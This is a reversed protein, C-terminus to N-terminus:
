PHLGEAPGGVGDEAVGLLGAGGDEGDGGGEDEGVDGDVGPGGALYSLHGGGELRRKWILPNRPNSSFMGSMTSSTNTSATSMEEMMSTSMPSKSFM